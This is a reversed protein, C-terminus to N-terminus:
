KGKGGKGGKGDKDTSPKPEGDDGTTFDEETLQRSEDGPQMSESVVREIDKNSEEVSIFGNKKHLAFVPNQSLYVLEEPTVPTVVGRPTVFQRDAVGAGGKILVGSGQPIPLDAGGKDFNQYLVSAALTSFVYISKSM